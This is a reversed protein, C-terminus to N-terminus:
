VRVHYDFSNVDEIYLALLLVFGLKIRCMIRRKRAFIRIRLFEILIM